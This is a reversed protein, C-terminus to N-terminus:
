GMTIGQVVNGLECGFRGTGLVRRLTIVILANTEWIRRNVGSKEVCGICCVIAIQKRRKNM